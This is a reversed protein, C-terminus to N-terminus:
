NLIEIQCSLTCKADSCVRTSKDNTHIILPLSDPIIQRIVWTRQLLEHLHLIFVWKWKHLRLSFLHLFLSKALFFLLETGGQGLKHHCFSRERQGALLSSTHLQQSMLNPSVLLSFSILPCAAWLCRPARDQTLASTAKGAIKQQLTCVSLAGLEWGELGGQMGGEHPGTATMCILAKHSISPLSRPIPLLVSPSLAYLFSQTTCHPRPLM